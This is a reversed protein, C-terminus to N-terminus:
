QPLLAGLLLAADEGTETVRIGGADEVLMDDDLLTAIAKNVNAKSMGPTSPDILDARKGVLGAEAIRVLVIDKASKPEMAEARAGVHKMALSTRLDDAVIVHVPEFTFSTGPAADRIEEVEVVTQGAANKSVKITSDVAGPLATSGRGQKGEDKGSHHVVLVAGSYHERVRDLGKVFRNMDATSNEDGNMSRAVTDFVVLDCPDADAALFDKLDDPSDVAVRMPVVNLWGELDKPDVKNHRCWALVRDGFRAGGGEGIVYTVRGRRVEAGHFPRGTAVCLCLDLTVFTKNSKRRGYLQVLAGQPVMNAVLWAPPPLSTLDFVSYRRFRTSRAPAAVPEAAEIEPWGENPEMRIRALANAITRQAYADADPRELISESIRWRPDTIVGLVQEPALGHRLLGCVADFLWASRSDDVEKRAELRGDRVIATVRDDLGLSELNEVGEPPGFEIAAAKQSAAALPVELSIYRNRPESFVLKTEVPVRGRGRKVKNPLNITGPLRMLHAADWTGPDGGLREVLLKNAREVEDVSMGEVAWVAQLGGGSDVIATPPGPEPYSELARITQVKRQELPLSALPHTAPLKDLDIDVALHSPQDLDSKLLRGSRGTPSASGNASYHLNATGARKALWSKLEAPDTFTAAATLGHDPVIAAVNWPGQPRLLELFQVAQGIDPVLEVAM